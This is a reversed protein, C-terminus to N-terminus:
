LPHLQNKAQVYAFFYYYQKAHASPPMGLAGLLVLKCYQKLIEPFVHPILNIKQRSIFTLPKKLFISNNQIHQTGM